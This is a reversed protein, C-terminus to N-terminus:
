PMPPTSRLPTIAALATSSASKIPMRRLPSRIPSGPRSGGSTALQSGQRALRQADLRRPPSAHSLLIAPPAAERAPGEQRAGCHATRAHPRRGHERPAQERVIRIPRRCEVLEVDVAEPHLRRPHPLLRNAWRQAASVLCVDRDHAAAERAHRSRVVERPAKGFFPDHQQLARATAVARAPAVAAERIRPHRAEVVHVLCVSGLACARVVVRRQEAEALDAREDALVAHVAVELLVPAEFEGGLLRVEVLEASCFRRKSAIPISVDSSSLAASRLSTCESRKTPASRSGPGAIRFGAFSASPMRRVM